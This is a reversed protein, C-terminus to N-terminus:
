VDDYVRERCSARGIRLAQRRREESPVARLAADVDAAIDRATRAHFRVAPDAVWYFWTPARILIEALFPSAGLALVLLELSRPDSRFHAYLSRTGLSARVFRELLNLAQDPDASRGLSALLEPLVEALAERALPDEAMAQLNRDAAASDRIGYRSFLAEVAEPELHRALLLDRVDRAGM